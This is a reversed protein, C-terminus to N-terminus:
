IFFMIQHWHIANSIIVIYAFLDLHYTVKGERLWFDGDKWSIEDFSNIIGTLKTTGMEFVIDGGDITVKGGDCNLQTYSIKSCSWILGHRSKWTGGLKQTILELFSKM